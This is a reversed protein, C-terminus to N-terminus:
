EYKIPEKLITGNIVFKGKIVPIYQHGIIRGRHDIMRVFKAGNVFEIMTQYRIKTM